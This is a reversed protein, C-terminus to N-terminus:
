QKKKKKKKKNKETMLLQVFMGKKKKKKEGGMMRLCSSLSGVAPMPGRSAASHLASAVDSEADSSAASRPTDDCDGAGDSM